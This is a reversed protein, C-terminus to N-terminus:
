WYVIPACLVSLRAILLARTNFVLPPQEFARAAGRISWRMHM